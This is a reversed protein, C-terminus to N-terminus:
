PPLLQISCLYCCPWLSKFDWSSKNALNEQYILVCWSTEPLSPPASNNKPLFGCHLQPNYTHACTPPRIVIKVHYIQFLSKFSKWNRGSLHQRIQLCYESSFHLHTEARMWVPTHVGVHTEEYTKLTPIYFTPLTKEFDASALSGAPTRRWGLSRTLKPLIWAIPLWIAYAKLLCWPLLSHEKGTFIVPKMLRWTPAAAPKLWLTWVTSSCLCRCQPWVIEDNNFKYVLYWLECRVFRNFFSNFFSFLEFKITKITSEIWFTDSSPYSSLGVHQM